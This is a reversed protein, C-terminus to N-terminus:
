DREDNIESKHKAALWLTIVRSLRRPKTGGKRENKSMTKSSSAWRAWRARRLRNLLMRSWLETALRQFVPLCSFLMFRHARPEVTVAGVGDNRADDLKNVLARRLGMDRVVVRSKVIKQGEEERRRERKRSEVVVHGHALPRSRMQKAASLRSNQYTSRM